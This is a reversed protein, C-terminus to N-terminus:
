CYEDNYAHEVCNREELYFDCTENALCASIFAGVQSAHEGGLLMKPHKKVKDVLLRDCQESPKNGFSNTDIEIM